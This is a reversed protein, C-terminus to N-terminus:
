GPLHKETLSLKTIKGSHRIEACVDSVNIDSPVSVSITISQEDNRPYLFAVGALFALAVIIYVFSIKLTRM